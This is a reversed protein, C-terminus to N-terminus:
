AGNSASAREEAEVSEAEADAQAPLELVPAPMLEGAARHIRRECTEWEELTCQDRKCDFACLADDAPVDRVFQDAIWRILGKLPNESGAM